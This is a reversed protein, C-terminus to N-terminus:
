ATIQTRFADRPAVQGCACKLNGSGIILRIMSVGGIGLSAIPIWWEARTQCPLDRHNEYESNSIDEEITNLREESSILVRSEERSEDSFVINANTLPIEYAPIEEPSPTPAPNAKSQRGPGM